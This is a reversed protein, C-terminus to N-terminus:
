SIIQNQQIKLFVSIESLIISSWFLEKICYLTQCIKNWMFNCKRRPYSHKIFLLIKCFFGFWIEWTMIKFIRFYKSSICKTKIELDILYRIDYLSKIMWVKMLSNKTLMKFNNKEQNYFFIQLATKWKYISYIHQKNIRIRGVFTM